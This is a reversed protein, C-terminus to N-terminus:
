PMKQGVSMYGDEERINMLVAPEHPTGVRFYWFKNLYRVSLTDVSGRHVEFKDPGLIWSLKDFNYSVYPVTVAWPKAYQRLRKVVQEAKSM